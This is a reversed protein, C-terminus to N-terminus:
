AIKGLVFRIKNSNSYAAILIYGEQLLRNMEEIDSIDTVREVEGLMGDNFKLSLGKAFADSTIEKTKKKEMDM